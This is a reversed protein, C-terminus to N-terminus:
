ENDIAEETPEEEQVENRNTEQAMPLQNGRPMSKKSDRAKAETIMLLVEEEGYEEDYLIHYAKELTILNAKLAMDLTRLQEEKSPSDYQAWEVLYEYDWDRVLTYTLEGETSAPTLLSLEDFIFILRILKTLFEDWLAAKDQRTKLTTKEREQLTEAASLRSVSDFGFTIPSLGVRQLAIKIYNEFGQNFPVVDLKPIDRKVESRKDTSVTGDYLIVTNLGFTTPKIVEGTSPNRKLQDESLFTTIRGNRYHDNWVSLLEDLANFIPYLGEYDSSGYVTGAFQASVPRNPKYVALMIDIPNGDPGQIVINKLSALSPITDMPVLEGKSNVLEYRIYGKGYYSKLVCTKGMYEHQDRFEIEYIKDYKTHLKIQEQPYFQLIPKDSFETDIVIKAGLGGSYSELQAGKQFLEKINNDALIVELRKNLDDSVKINGTNVKMHVKEGFLVSAMAKSISSALPYHIRVVDGEVSRWFNYLSVSDPQNVQKHFKELLSTDGNFWVYNLQQFYDMQKEPQLQIREIEALGMQQRVERKIDTDINLYKRLSDKIFGM